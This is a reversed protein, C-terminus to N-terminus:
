SLNKGSSLDEEIRIYDNSEKKVNKSSKNPVISEESVKM